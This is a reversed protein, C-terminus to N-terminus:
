IATRTASTRGSRAGDFLARYFDRSRDQDSVVLFHTIVFGEAPAPFEELEM